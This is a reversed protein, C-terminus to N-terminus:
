VYVECSMYLSQLQYILKTDLMYLSQIEYILKTARIYAKYRM